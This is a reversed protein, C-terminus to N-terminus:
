IVDGSLTQVNQLLLLAVAEVKSVGPKIGVYVVGPLSGAPVPPGAHWSPRSDATFCQSFDNSGSSCQPMQRSNLLM